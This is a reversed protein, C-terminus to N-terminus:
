SNKPYLTLMEMSIYGFAVLRCIWFTYLLKTQPTTLQPQTTCIIFRNLPKVTEMKTPLNDTTLRARSDLVTQFITCQSQPKSFLSMFLFLSGVGQLCGELYRSVKIYFIFASRPVNLPTLYKPHQLNWVMVCCCLTNGAMNVEHPLTTSISFIGM